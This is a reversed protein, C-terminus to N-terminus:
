LTSGIICKWEEVPTSMFRGRNKQCGGKKNALPIRLHRDEQSTKIGEVCVCVCLLVLECVCLQAHLLEILFPM